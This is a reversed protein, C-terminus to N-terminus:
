WCDGTGSATRTGEEDLSLTGCDDTAQSNVPTATVTFTNADSVLALTYKGGGQPSVNRFIGGDGLEADAYTFNQSRYRAMAAAVAELDGMAATRSAKQVHAQYSPVAIAALVGIIAIVILLEAMTFGKEVTKQM